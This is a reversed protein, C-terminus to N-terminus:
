TAAITASSGAGLTMAVARMPSLSRGGFTADPPLTVVPLEAGAILSAAWLARSASSSQELVDEAGLHAFVDPLTAPHVGRAVGIARQGPLLDAGQETLRELDGPLELM